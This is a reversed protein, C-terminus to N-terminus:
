RLAALLRLLTERDRPRLADLTEDSAQRALPACRDYAARGDATLSVTIRRRDSADPELRVYGRRALREVVGKVTAVDMATLRGLQNQSSEGVEALRALAAWQTPTFEPGFLGSFIGVHRQHAQRLMFGVQADLAYDPRGRESAEALADAEVFADSEMAADSEM